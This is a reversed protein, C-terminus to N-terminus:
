LCRWSTYFMDSPEWANIERTVDPLNPRFSKDLYSGVGWFLHTFILPETSAPEKLFGYKLNVKVQSKRLEKSPPTEEGQSRSSSM